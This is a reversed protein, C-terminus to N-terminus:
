SKNDILLHCFSVKLGGIFRIRSVNYIYLVSEESKPAINYCRILIIILLVTPSRDHIPAVLRSISKGGAIVNSSSNIQHINSSIADLM